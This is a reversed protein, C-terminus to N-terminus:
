KIFKVSNLIQNSIDSKVYNITLLDDTKLVNYLVLFVVKENCGGGFCSLIAEQGDIKIDSPGKEMDLMKQSNLYNNKNWPNITVITKEHEIIEIGKETTVTNLNSPYSIQYGYKTNTYTKWSNSKKNLFFVASCITIVLISFIAIFVKNNIKSKIPTNEPSTNTQNNPEM